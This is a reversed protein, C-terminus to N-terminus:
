LPLKIGQRKEIVKMLQHDVLAFGLHHDEVAELFDEQIVMEKEFPLLKLNGDSIGIEPNLEFSWTEIRLM